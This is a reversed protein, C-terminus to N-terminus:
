DPVGRVDGTPSVFMAKRKKWNCDVGFRALLAQAEQPSHCHGYHPARLVLPIM